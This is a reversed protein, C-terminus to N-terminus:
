AKALYINLENETWDPGFPDPDQMNFGNPYDRDDDMLVERMDDSVACWGM